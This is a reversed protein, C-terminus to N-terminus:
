RCIMNLFRNLPTIKGNKAPISAIMDPHPLGLSGPIIKNPIHKVKEPDTNLKTLTEAQFSCNGAALIPVFKKLTASSWGMPRSSLRSSLVHSVHPETAGGNQAEPDINYIHIAEFNSLLYETAETITKVREPWRSLLTDRSRMFSNRDGKNLAQRLLYEYQAGSKREIGSVAHKLAKNVHYRDLVFKCNPLWEMGAKIWAAGDGHLYIITDSIDYRREIESLVKEWLDETKIGYESCHFVNKCIGRTGKREIGEYVSILPVIRSEGTQLKIHDEDADVHLVPAKKRLVTEALPSAQRIKRMVTQKTVLGGTVVRSAKAYSMECATEVLQLGVSSSVRQYSELGVVNDIPYCYGGERCAYYTRRYSVVGLQTVVQRTEKRREVVLGIEKRHSKDALLEADKQEYCAALLNRVTKGIQQTFYIEAKDLSIEDKEFFKEIERKLKEIEVAIIKNM